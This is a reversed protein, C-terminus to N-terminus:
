QPQHPSDDVKIVGRQRKVAIVRQKLTEFLQRPHPLGRMPLQPTTDDNSFITVTGVGMIRELISQQMRIDEVHWLELTDIRKSLLGREVDIRYNSIKFRMTKSWVWPICILIAGVVFAAPYVWWLIATQDRLVKLVIPAAIIILGVLSWPWGRIVEWRMLPSGEFYVEETDDAPAHPRNADPDNVPPVDHPNTM